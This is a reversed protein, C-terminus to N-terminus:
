TGNSQEKEVIRGVPIADQWDYDSIHDPQNEFFHKGAGILYGLVKEQEASKGLEGSPQEAPETLFMGLRDIPCCEPCPEAHYGNEANVFGGVLGRGNCTECPQAKSSEARQIAEDLRQYELAFDKDRDSAAALAQRARKAAKLLEEDVSPASADIFSDATM